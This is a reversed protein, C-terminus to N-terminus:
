EPVTHMPLVHFWEAPKGRGCGFFYHLGDIFEKTRRDTKYMWQQDMQMTQIVHILFYLNWYGIVCNSYYWEEYVLAEHVVEHLREVNRDFEALGPAERRANYRAM